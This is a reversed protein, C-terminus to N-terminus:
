FFATAGGGLLGLGWTPLALGPFSAAAGLVAGAAVGTLVSPTSQEQTEGLAKARRTAIVGGALAGIGAGIVPSLFGGAVGKFATSVATAVMLGSAAMGGQVSGRVVKTMVGPEQPPSTKFGDPPPAQPEPAQASAPRLPTPPSSAGTIQM